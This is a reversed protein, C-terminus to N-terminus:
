LGLAKLIEPYNAYVRRAAALVQQPTATYTGKNGYAILTRWHNTFVQHEAPTVAVSKMQSAVQGFLHKFRQEILHHAQLGTGRIAARLDQYSRIGYKPAQSLGGYAARCFGGISSSASSLAAQGNRFLQLGRPGNYGATAGLAGCLAPSRACGQTVTDWILGSPDVRNVPEGGVYAYLNADGGGFGIPDKTTWRGTAADYDRAGFRVLGTDPDYLGGAYGFPQFGPNSDETVVGWPDYDLRQGIAGTSTNVVLRVSGRVDTVLRWREGDRIMYEPVHGFTAYVFQSEVEGAANLEAAPGADQGWLWGRDAVGDIRRGIPRDEGDHEYEIM